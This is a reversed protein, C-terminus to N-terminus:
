SCETPFYDGNLNYGLNKFLYQVQELGKNFPKFNRLSSMEDQGTEGRFPSFACNLSSKWRIMLLQM